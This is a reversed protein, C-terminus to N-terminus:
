NKKLIVCWNEKDFYSKEIVCNNCKKCLEELENEEFFHYYRKCDTNNWDVFLDSSNIKAWVYILIKGNNKCIRVLEQIAKLRREETSLHHIIAICIVGDAINDRFPINTIDGQIFLSKSRKQKAIQLLNFCYDLGFNLGNCLEINKGNGCGIDFIFSKDDFSNLFQKVMNWPTYRTCSFHNAIKSYVDHVYKKEYEDSTLQQYEDININTKKGSM